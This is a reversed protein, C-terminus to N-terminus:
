RPLITMRLLGPTRPWLCCPGTLLDWAKRTGKHSDCQVCPYISTNFCTEGKVPVRLCQLCPWPISHWIPPLSCSESLQLYALYGLWEIYRLVKSLTGTTKVAGTSGLTPKSSKLSVKTGELSSQSLRLAGGLSRWGVGLCCSELDKQLHPLQVLIEAQHM